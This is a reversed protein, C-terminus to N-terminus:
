KQKITIMQKTGPAADAHMELAEISFIALESPIATIQDPFHHVEIKKRTTLFESFYKSKGLLEMQFETTDFPLEYISLFIIAELANPSKGNSYM